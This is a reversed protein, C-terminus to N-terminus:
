EPVQSHYYGAPIARAQQQRRYLETIDAAVQDVTQTDDSESLEQDCLAPYDQSM